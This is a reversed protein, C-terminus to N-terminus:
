LFSEVLFPDGVLSGEGTAILGKIPDLLPAAPSWGKGEWLQISKV